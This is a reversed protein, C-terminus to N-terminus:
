ELTGSRGQGALVRKHVGDGSLSDRLETALDALEHLDRAFTPYSRM